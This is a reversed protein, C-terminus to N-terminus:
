HYRHFPDAVLSSPVYQGTADNGLSSSVYIIHADESPTFLTWGEDRDGNADNDNIEIEDIDSEEVDPINTTDVITSDSEFNDPDERDQIQKTDNDVVISDTDFNDSKEMINNDDDSKTDQEKVEETERNKVEDSLQNSYNLNDISCGFFLFFVLFIFLLLKM